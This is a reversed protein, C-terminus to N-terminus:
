SCDPTSAKVSSPEGLSRLGARYSWSPIPKRYSGAVNQDDAARAADSAQDDLLRDTLKTLLFVDEGITERRNPRKEVHLRQLHIM